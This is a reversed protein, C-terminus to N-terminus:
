SGSDPSALARAVAIAESVADPRGDHANMGAAYGVLFTTLPAAARVVTHAAVGALALIADVDAAPVGLAASLRDNWDAVLEAASDDDAM